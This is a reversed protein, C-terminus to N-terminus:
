IDQPPTSSISVPQSHSQKQPTRFLQSSASATVSCRRWRRTQIGGWLSVWELLRAPGSPRREPKTVSLSHATTTPRLKRGAHFLISFFNGKGYAASKGEMREVGLKGINDQELSPLVHIQKGFMGVPLSPPRYACSKGLWLTQQSKTPNELQM